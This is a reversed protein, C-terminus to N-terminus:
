GRNPEQFHMWRLLFSCCLSRLASSAKLVRLLFCTFLVNSANVTVFDGTLGIPLLHTHGKELPGELM